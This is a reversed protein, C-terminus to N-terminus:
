SKEKRNYKEVADDYSKKRIIEFLSEGKDYMDLLEEELFDDTTRNPSTSNRSSSDSMM